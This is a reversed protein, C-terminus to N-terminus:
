TGFERPIELEWDEVDRESLADLFNPSIEGGYDQLINGFVHMVNLALSVSATMKQISDDETIADMREVAKSINEKVEEVSSGFTVMYNPYLSEKIANKIADKNLLWSAGFEYPYTSLNTNSIYYDAFDDILDREVAFRVAEEQEKEGDKNWEQNHKNLWENIDYEYSEPSNMIDERLFSAIYDPDGHKAIEEPHLTLDGWKIGNSVIHEIAANDDTFEVDVITSFVMEAWAEEDEIPHMNNWAQFVDEINDKINDFFDWAISDIRRLVNEQKKPHQFLDRNKVFSAKYELEHLTEIRDELKYEDPSEIERILKATKLIFDENKKKNYWSM